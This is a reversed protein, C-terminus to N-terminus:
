RSWSSAPTPRRRSGTSWASSGCCIRPPSASRTVGTRRCRVRRASADGAHPDAGRGAKGSPGVVTTHLSQYLNFKPMAIYDKFRGQVPKWMAHISGLAAYCDKVSEVVVRVGVLDQVDDFQKGRTIMKEYISWYHKPRGTVEAEIHLEALRVRLEALVTQLFDEREPAQTAVMQEIEAYRLPYLVAFATDELQWKVDAIGLRHALPAYIDLTEQAIRRQKFEPLSAITRMNHLRDALKILLVRIDKAMAVLMKRLTAAQQAEKSDFQLRDLKTVGDVIAAVEAGLEREIDDTTITTDEVADHLLAAAITVDDLGLDALVLAVGLPHTIYPEGSRRVQEQHADRALEFAHEILATDTRRHRERYAEVLPAVEVDVTHHRRWPLVSRRDGRLEVRPGVFPTDTTSVHGGTRGPPWRTVTSPKASRARRVADAASAGDSSARAPRRHAERRSVQGRTRDPRRRRAVHGAARRRADRRCGARGGVGTGGRRGDLGTGACGDTSTSAITARARDSEARARLARYKPEREKLWALIPTAVFISSYAGTLLGVFLALAFDRLALGGFLYTGVFLLSAVPLLAVLSTNISRMLVQNMSRNVMTSYTDGRVTGLRAQNDKVKDFVVVTDYLSFGLITLFAVVTAPTVEFGTVAYVGVTIIIDHIVAIIAALAMRWEFRFTLYLAIVVFFVVLAKLAKSSVKDGWTPGVNTLSM